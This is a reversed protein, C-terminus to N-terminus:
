YSLGLLESRIVIQCCVLASDSNLKDTQVQYNTALTPCFHFKHQQQIPLKHNHIYLKAIIM